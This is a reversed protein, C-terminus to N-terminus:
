SLKIIGSFYYKDNSKKFQYQYQNLLSKHEALDDETVNKVVPKFLNDFNYFSNNTKDYITATTLFYLVNGEEYIEDIEELIQRDAQDACLLSRTTFDDTDKRYQFDACHYTFNTKTFNDANGILDIYAQRLDNAPIIIGDNSDYTVNSNLRNYAMGLLYEPQIESAKHDDTYLYYASVKDANLKTQLSDFLYGYNQKYWEASKVEPDPQVTAVECNNNRECDSKMFDFYKADYLWYSLFGVVVALLLIIVDRVIVGARRRREIKRTQKRFHELEDHIYEQLSGIVEFKCNEIQDRIEAQFEERSKKASDAKIEIEITDVTDDQAGKDPKEDEEGSESANSGEDTPTKDSKETTAAPDEQDNESKETEVKSENEESTTKKEDDVSDKDNSEDTRVSDSSKVEQEAQNTKEENARGKEEADGADSSALSKKVDETM